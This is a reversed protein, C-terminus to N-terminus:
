SWHVPEDEHGIFLNMRMVLSGERGEGSEGTVHTDLQKLLGSLATDLERLAQQGGATPEGDVPPPAHRRFLALSLNLWRERDHDLEGLTQQCCPLTEGQYTDCQLALSQSWNKM